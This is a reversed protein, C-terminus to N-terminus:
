GVKFKVKSSTDILSTISRRFLRWGEGTSPTVACCFHLGGKELNWVRPLDSTM